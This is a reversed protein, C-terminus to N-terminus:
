WQTDDFRTGYNAYRDAAHVINSCRSVQTLMEWTGQSAQMVDTELRQAVKAFDCDVM